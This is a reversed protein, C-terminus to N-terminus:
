VPFNHPLHNFCIRVLWGFCTWYSTESIINIKQGMLLGQEHLKYRLMWLFSQEQEVKRTYRPQGSWRYGCCSSPVRSSRSWDQVRRSQHVEQGCGGLVKHKGTVSSLWLNMTVSAWLCWIKFSKIHVDETIWNM